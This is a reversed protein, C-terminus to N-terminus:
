YWVSSGNCNVSVFKLWWAAYIWDNILNTQEEKSYDPYNTIVLHAWSETYKIMTESMSMAMDPSIGGQSDESGDEGGYFDSPMERSFDISKQSLEALLMNGYKGRYWCDTGFMGLVGPINKVMPDNEKETKYPCQGLEITKECDIQGDDNMVAKNQVKCAYERPINDLGM